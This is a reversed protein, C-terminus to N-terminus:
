RLQVRPDVVRQLVDSLILSLLTVLGVLMTLAMVMPYDYHRVAEYSLRGLGPLSFITEVVVTGTILSPLMTGLLTVLPSLGNKLVRGRILKESMGWGRLAVVFDSGAARAVSSRLFRFTVVGYGLALTFVPLILHALLDLLRAAVSQGAVPDSHLQGIPLIEGFLGAGFVLVLLTAILFEPVGFLIFACTSVTRDLSGGIRMGAYAGLPIAVALGLLLALANLLLTVPVAKQLRERFLQRDAATGAFDLMAARGLWRLYRYGVSYREGSHPDRLGYQIELDRARQQRVKIDEASATGPRQDLNVLARDGPALEMLLFTVLSIGILSPVVWLLRKLVYKLM